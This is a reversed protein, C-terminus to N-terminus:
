KLKNNIQIFKPRVLMILVPMVTLTFFASVVLALGLIGGFLRLHQGAALILVEFGLGVSLANIIIAVGTTQLTKTLAKLQDSNKKFELKFRSVFHITYDIGLGIVVSAILATFSDLGIGFYGLISFNTVITLITPVVGILGIKVSKFILMLIFIVIMLTIGVSKIQTPTLEKEMQNLVPVMGTLSVSLKTEDLKGDALVENNRSFEVASIAVIEDQSLWLSGMIKKSLDQDTDIDLESTLERYLLNVKFEKVRDKLRFYLSDALWEIDEPYDTELQPRLVDAIEQTSPINAIGMGTLKDVVSAAAQEAIESDTVIVESYDSLLYSSVIAELEKRYLEISLNQNINFLENVVITKIEEASLSDSLNNQLQINIRDVTQNFQINEVTEIGKNDLLSKDILVLNNPIDNMYGKISEAASRMDATAMTKVRGQILAENDDSTVFQKMMKEGQILFWLNAVGQSTEPVKYRGNMVYNMESIITAVSSTNEVLDQSNAYAEIARMEKLVAPEKIDGKVSIQLPLSGGFRDRLIMEAQYPKSGRALCLSWDVNTVIMPIGISAVIIFVITGLIVGRQHRHIVGAMRAMLKSNGTSRNEKRGTSGQLFTALPPLFFLTVVLALFVGLSTVLGFNKIINFDSIMLSAFGVITTISTFIIPVAMEDLTERIAEATTMGEATAEFYRRMFHIGDASGMAILIVPVIGTLIDLPIGLLSLIGVVWIASILVVILPFVIGSIRKFGLYLIGLLFLLMLPVLFTLNKIIGQSMSYMVFPMGGFYFNETSGNIEETVDIVRAAAKMHDVDAKFNLMLLTANGSKDLLIGRYMEKNLINEKLDELAAQEEPVGQDLLKGVTIMGDEKKFDPVNTLSIVSDVEGIGELEKTLSDITHLNSSTFLREGNDPKFIVMGIYNSNFVDGVRKFEQVMPDDNSLYTSFDTNLQIGVAYYGFVITLIVIISILLYKRRIIFRTFKDM